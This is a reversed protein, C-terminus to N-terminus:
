NTTQMLEAQHLTVRYFGQSVRVFRLCDGPQANYQCYFERWGRWRVRHSQYLDTTIQQGSPLELAFPQDGFYAQGGAVAAYANRIAGETLVTDFVPSQNDPLVFWARYPNKAYAPGVDIPVVDRLHVLTAFRSNRKALWYENNGCIARDYQTRLQTVEAPSMDQKSLINAARALARFPGGSEKIFIQEGQKIVGFPPVAMKSLRSEITKEGALILEVYQRKLIAVHISM